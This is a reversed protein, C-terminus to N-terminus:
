TVDIAVDDPTKTVVVIVFGSPLVGNAVIESLVLKEFFDLSKLCVMHLALYAVTVDAYCYHKHEYYHHTNTLMGITNRHTGITNTHAANTVQAFYRLRCHISRPQRGLFWKM